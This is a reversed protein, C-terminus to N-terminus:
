LRYRQLIFRFKESKEPFQREWSKVVTQYEEELFVQKGIYFPIIGNKSHMLKFNVISESGGGMHYYRVGEELFRRIIVDKMMNNPRTKFFRADTGGLFGFAYPPDFPVIEVSAPRNDKHVIFFLVRRDLLRLCDRIFRRSFYYYDDASNRDMTSEYVQMFADLDEETVEGGYKSIWQLGAKGAAKVNRRATYNFSDYLYDPLGLDIFVNWQNEIIQAHDQHFHHNGMLPNFRSFDCIVNNQRAWKELNEFFADRFDQEECNSAVGDYGYAGILDHYGQLPCWPYSISRKLFPYVAVRQGDSLVACCAMGQGDNEFVRYFDSTHYISRNEPPIRSLAEDWTTTRTLDLIDFQM